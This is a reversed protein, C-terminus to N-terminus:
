ATLVVHEAADALKHFFRGDVTWGKGNRLFLFQRGMYDAIYTDPDGNQYVGLGHYRRVKRPNPKRAM